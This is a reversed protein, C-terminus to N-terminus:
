PCSLRYHTDSSYKNGLTNIEKRYEIISILEM